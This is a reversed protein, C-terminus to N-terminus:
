GHPGGAVGPAEGNGEVDAGDSRAIKRGDADPEAEPASGADPAVITACQGSAGTTVCEIGEDCPWVEDLSGGRGLERRAWGALM